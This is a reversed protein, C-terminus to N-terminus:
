FCARALAHVVYDETDNLGECTRAAPEATFSYLEDSRAAGSYSQM